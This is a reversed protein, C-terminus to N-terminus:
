TEQTHKTRRRRRPLFTCGFFRTQKLCNVAPAVYLRSLMFFAEDVVVSRGSRDTEEAQHAEGEALQGDNIEMRGRGNRSCLCVTCYQCTAIDRRVRFAACGVERRNHARPHKWSSDTLFIMGPFSPHVVYFFRLRIKLGPFRLIGLQHIDNVVVLVVAM